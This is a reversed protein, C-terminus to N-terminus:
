VFQREAAILRMCNYRLFLDAVNSQNKYEQYRIYM